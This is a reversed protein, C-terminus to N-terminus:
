HADADELEYLRRRQPRAEIRAIVKSRWVGFEDEPHRPRMAANDPDIANMLDVLHALQALAGRAQGMLALFEREDEDWRADIGSFTRAEISAFEDATMRYRKELEEMQGAFTIALFPGAVFRCPSSLVPAHSKRRAM